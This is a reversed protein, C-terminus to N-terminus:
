RQPYVRKVGRPIKLRLDAGRLRPNRAIETYTYLRYDGPTPLYLKQQVPQRSATAVWMELRPIRQAMKEDKPVLELKVTAEGAAAERGGWTVDYHESLFRGGTGFGLLLAQELAAKSNSLDYEEVTAIRPRYIEAKEGRVAFFYSYPTHFEVLLRFEGEKGRLVKIVGEEVSEDEVIATYKVWRLKARMGRFEAAAGDMRALLTELDSGAQGSPCILILLAAAVWSRVIM